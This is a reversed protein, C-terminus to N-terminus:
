MLDKPLLPNSGKYSSVGSFKNKREGHECLSSTMHTCLLFAAMQLGRVSREGSILGMLVRIESKWGRCSHSFFNRDNLGDERLAM